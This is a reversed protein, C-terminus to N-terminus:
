TNKVSQNTKKEQLKDEHTIYETRRLWSVVPIKDNLSSTKLVGNSASQDSPIM